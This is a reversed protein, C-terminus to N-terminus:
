TLQPFGGLGNDPKLNRPTFNVSNKRNHKVKPTILHLCYFPLRSCSEEHRHAAAKKSSPPRAGYM